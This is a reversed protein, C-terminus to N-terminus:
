YKYLSIQSFCLIELGILNIDHLGILCSLVSYVCESNHKM